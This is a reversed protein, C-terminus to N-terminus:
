VVDKSVVGTDVEVHLSQSPSTTSYNILTKINVSLNWPPVFKPKMPPAMCAISLSLPCSTKIIVTLMMLKM